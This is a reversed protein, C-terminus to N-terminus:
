EPIVPRIANKALGEVGTRVFILIRTIDHIGLGQKLEEISFKSQDKGRPALYINVIPLVEDFIYYLKSLVIEMTINEKPIDGAKSAKDIVKDWFLATACLNALPPSFVEIEEEGVHVKLPVDCLINLERQKDTM